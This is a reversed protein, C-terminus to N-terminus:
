RFPNQVTLQREIIQGSQMDESYLIRSGTELASALILSDFLSFSHRQAISCARDHTAVTLPHVRCLARVVGLIEHIAAWPLARKGRAVNAFENLVQVSVNGGDALLAEARDAKRPESGVLYLLVNTDFFVEIGPM